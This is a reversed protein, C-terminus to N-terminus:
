YVCVCLVQQYFVNVIPKPRYVPNTLLLFYLIASSKEKLLYEVM